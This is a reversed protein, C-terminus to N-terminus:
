AAQPMFESLAKKVSHSELVRKGFARLLQENQERRHKDIVDAVSAEGEEVKRWLLYSLLFFNLLFYRRIAGLSRVRFDGLGLRDKLYLYDVEIDWRKGYLMLAEKVSLRSDTCLFFAYRRDWQSRKSFIVGVEKGIGKIKGKKLSTWYVTSGDASGVCVRRLSKNRLKRSWQSLQKGEFSRNSRLGCIVEWGQALCFRILEKSAYWSDFLVYVPYGAPLYPKIKELLQMALEFKSRFRIKQKRGRNMKRVTKNKLYIEFDVPMSRQGCRIHASVFSLAHRYGKEDHFWDVPEFHKSGAPKATNSDDISIIIPEVGARRGSMVWRVNNRILANDFLEDKWPSCTFFDALSAPHRSDINLRTIKALTREGELALTGEMFRVLHRLQPLTISAPLWKSLFTSLAKTIEIIRIM